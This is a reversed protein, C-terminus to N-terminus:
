RLALKHGQDLKLFNLIWSSREEVTGFPVREVKYGLAKYCDALHDGLKEAVDRSEYRVQSNQYFEERLPAVLFVTTDYFGTKLVDEVREKITNHVPYNYYLSYALPDVPGRDFFVVPAQTAAAEAQRQHIRDSISLDFNKDLWPQAIGQAQLEQILDTVAERVIMFGKKQLCEIISTKGVCPGGTLLYRKQLLNLPQKARSKIMGELEQLKTSKLARSSKESALLSASVDLNVCSIFLGALLLSTAIKKIRLMVVIRKM